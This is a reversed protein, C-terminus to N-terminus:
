LAPIIKIPSAKTGRGGCFLLREHNKRWGWKYITIIEIEKCLM